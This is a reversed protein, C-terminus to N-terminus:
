QGEGRAKKFTDILQSIWKKPKFVFLEHRHKMLFFFLQWNFHGNSKKSYHRLLQSYFDKEENNANEKMVTLWNLTKKFEEFRKQSSRTGTKAAITKTVTDAHQRYYALPTAEYCVPGGVVAKYGIWIDHPIGYPIPLIKKIFDRQIMMTHGWFVNSFVFGKTHGPLQMQRLDSLKKGLNKGSEDILISNGYVLNCDQIAALLKEIKSEMWIDDQDCCCIFEGAAKELAFSFNSVPGKNKKHLYLQVRSDSKYQQLIEPTDDDSADDSIIIETNRYTQKLLSDIQEEVFRSGNYTCLVISVLPESM